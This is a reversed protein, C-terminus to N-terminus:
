WWTFLSGHIYRTCPAFGEKNSGWAGRVESQISTGHPFVLAATLPIFVGGEQVMGGKGRWMARVGSEQIENWAETM